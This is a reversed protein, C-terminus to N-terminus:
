TLLRSLLSLLSARSEPRLHLLSNRLTLRLLARHPRSKTLLLPKSSAASPSTRIHAAKPLFATRSTTLIRIVGEVRREIEVSKLDELEKELNRTTFDGLKLWHKPVTEETSSPSFLKVKVGQVTESAVAELKETVGAEQALIVSTSIMDLM